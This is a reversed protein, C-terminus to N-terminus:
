LVYRVISSISQMFQSSIALAYQLLMNCSCCPLLFMLLLQSSQELRAILQQITEDIPFIFVTPEYRHGIDYVSFVLHQHMM